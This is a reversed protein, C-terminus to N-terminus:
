PEPALVRHLTAGLDEITNPKLVLERIGLDRAVRLDEDRVYGSTLVIPIEPRMKLIARALEPGTMGPMSLDSVVADFATPDGRFEELAQQPDIRGTVRYGLRELVRTTLFVLAEEDDVYLIRQGAGEAAVNEPVSRKSDATQLTEPFYLRLTSGQGVVSSVDIAGEHDRVIGHVVSLGLGTGHGPAKTTFFPEFVRQMIAADMGVGTDCVTLCAYRGPLLEVPHEKSNADINVSCVTVSMTGGRERMAYAANTGLNVVVQHMQTPDALISPTDDAYSPRIEIQAPLTARLLRLAEAVVDSLKVIQRQAEQKSSFTLIQRVLDSARRGAKEIERLHTQLPHHDALQDIVFRVNGSIAALINNFDHAIGGALTGISELRQTTLFQAELKKQQTVDTNIALISRPKGDDDRVLTWSADVIVEQGNKAFQKLEGRWEGHELLRAILARREPTDRCTLVTIKCGIAERTTWGYLRTAGDNWYYVNDDLGYLVIADTAKDLLAAQAAVQAEAERQATVDTMFGELFAPEGHEDYIGGGREWIWKLQGQKTIIRYTMEYPGHQAIAGLLTSTTPERDQPYVIAVYSNWFDDRLDAPDYGTLAECGDSLFHAVWKSEDKRIRYAMGPSNALLNALIRESEDLEDQKNASEVAFSLNDALANLVRLEETGFYDVQDSYLALLGYVLGDTKLPLVGCARMGLNLAEEKVYFTPDNAIDNAVMPVGDRLARGAPGPLSPSSRIRKFVRDIFEQNGGCHAALELKGTDPDRVGIWALKVEGQKVAIRCADRYLALPDRIRVIAENISSSVAYLRSVRRLRQETQEVLQGLAVAINEKANADALAVAIAKEARALADRRANEANIENQNHPTPEFM